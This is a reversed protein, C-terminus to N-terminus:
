QALAVAVFDTAAVAVAFAAVVPVDVAASAVVIMM